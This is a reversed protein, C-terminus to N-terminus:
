GVKMKRFYEVLNELKVTEQARSVTDRVIVSNELAERQGLIISYPIKLNEASSIQSILRDRDLAQYLSIHAQRLIEIVRLSKLKACFGLQLFFVSPKKFRICKPAFLEKGTRGLALNM